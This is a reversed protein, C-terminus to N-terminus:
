AWGRRLIVSHGVTAGTSPSIMINKWCCCPQDVWCAHIPSGGCAGGSVGSGPRKAVCWRVPHLHVSVGLLVKSTLSIYVSLDNGPSAHAHYKGCGRREEFVGSTETPLFFLMRGM